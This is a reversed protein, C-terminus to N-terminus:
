QIKKFTGVWTSGDLNVSRAILQKDRVQWMIRDGRRNTVTLPSTEEPWFEHRSSQTRGYDRNSGDFRSISGLVVTVATSSIEEFVYVADIMHRNTREERWEGVWAGSLEALETPVSPGPPTISIDELVPIDKPVRKRLVESLTETSTSTAKVMEVQRSSYSFIFIFVFLLVILYKVIVM